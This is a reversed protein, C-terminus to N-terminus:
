FQAIGDRQPDYLSVHENFLLHSFTREIRQHSCANFLQYPGQKVESRLSKKTELFLKKATEEQLRPTSSKLEWVGTLSAEMRVVTFIDSLDFCAIHVHSCGHVIVWDTLEKFAEGMATHEDPLHSYKWCASYLSLLM